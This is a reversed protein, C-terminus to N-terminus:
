HAAFLVAENQLLLYRGENCRQVMVGVVDRGPGSRLDAYVSAAGACDHTM